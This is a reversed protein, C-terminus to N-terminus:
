SCCFCHNECHFGVSQNVITKRLINRKKMSEEYRQAMLFTIVVGAMVSLVTNERALEAQRREAKAARVDAVSRFGNFVDWTGRFGWDFNHSPPNNYYLLDYLWFHWLLCLSLVAIFGYM